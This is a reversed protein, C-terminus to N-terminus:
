VVSGQEIGAPERGECLDMVAKMTTWNRTTASVKLIKEIFNNSRRSKGYGEGYYSYVVRHRVEHRDIDNMTEMLTELEEKAAEHSLLTVYLNKADGMHSLPHSEVAAQLEERSLVIALTEVKLRNKLESDIEAEMRRKNSETHEFVANGSQIYTKVGSYGIYELTKRFDEMRLVAGGVNVARLFAIYKGM